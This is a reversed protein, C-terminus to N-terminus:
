GKKATLVVAGDAITLAGKTFAIKVTPVGAPFFVLNGTHILGRRSPGSPRDIGLSDRQVDVTFYDRPGPGYVYKGALADRDAPAIATSPLPIDADGVSTLYVVVAEADKGGARAHSMLTIGHPGYTKQIGPRAAIFAKVVDLQGMMAASFMTPRAGHTLLFEAIPKNGVHAAADICTEWDGFGWDMSARAYAPQAEVIERVRAFNGHSAGVVDKVLAPDQGPYVDAANIAPAPPAQGWARTALASIGLASFGSSLSVFSRRSLPM